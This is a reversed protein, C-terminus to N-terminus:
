RTAVNFVLKKSFANNILSFSEEEYAVGYAYQACYDVLILKSSYISDAYFDFFRRKETNLSVEYKKTINYSLYENSYLANSINVTFNITSIKDYGNGRYVSAGIVNAISVNQTPYINEDFKLVAQPGGPHQVVAYVGKVFNGSYYKIHVVDGELFSYTNQAIEVEDTRIFISSFNPALEQVLHSEKNKVQYSM